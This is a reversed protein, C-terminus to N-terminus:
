LNSDIESPRPCPQPEHRALEWSIGLSSTWPDCKKFLSVLFARERKGEVIEQAEKLVSVIGLQVSISAQGDPDGERGAAGGEKAEEHDTGERGM